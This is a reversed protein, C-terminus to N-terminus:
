TNTPKSGNGMWLPQKWGLLQLYISKENPNYVDKMCKNNARAFRKVAQTIEGQIGKEVILLMDIDM